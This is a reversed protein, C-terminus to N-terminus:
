TGTERSQEPVWRKTVLEEIISRELWLPFNQNDSSRKINLVLLTKAVSGCVRLTCQLDSWVRLRPNSGDGDGQNFVLVAYGSHVLAPHHRYAVFDVGYQTGSRVVWNKSRLHSYAKYLDPLTERKFKMNEWLDEGNMPSGDEGLIRLCKLAHSLYFAEELGLQFWQTDKESTQIRVGFSARDLLDASEQGAQLLANLGSLQATAELQTLSAQLQKVIESMPNDKAIDAFGKAKWRPRISEM